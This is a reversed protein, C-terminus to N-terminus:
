GSHGADPPPGAPASPPFAPSLPSSEVGTRCTAAMAARKVPMGERWGFWAAAAGLATGAFVTVAPPIAAYASFLRGTAPVFPAFWMTVAQLAMFFSAGAQQRGDMRKVEFHRSGSVALHTCPPFFIALDWPYDIVDM